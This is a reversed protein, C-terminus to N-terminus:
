GESHTFLATMTSPLRLLDDVKSAYKKLDGWDYIRVLESPLPM